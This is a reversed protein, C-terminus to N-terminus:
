RFKPEYSSIVAEKTYTHEINGCLKCKRSWRDVKVDRWGDPIGWSDVGQRITKYSSIEKKTEPNYFAKDFDHKCYAIKNEEQKILDQLEKIRDNM